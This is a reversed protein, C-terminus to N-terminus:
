SLSLDKKFEKAIERISEETAIIQQRKFALGSILRPKSLLLYALKLYKGVGHTASLVESIAARSRNIKVLQSKEIKGAVLKKMNSWAEDPGISPDPLGQQRLYYCIRALISSQLQLHKGAYCMSSQHLRYYLLVEELVHLKSLQLVRLWLEIDEGYEFRENYGGAQLVIDKRMMVTPHPMLTGKGPNLLYEVIKAHSGGRTSKKRTLKGSEDIFAIGTGLVGVEPHKEMWSLQLAFRDPFAIDDQDMRAILSARAMEIGRNLTAVLGKNKQEVFIIREDSYSRVIRAGDDMSGDNIIIFEFDRETQELISDIAARLYPEGNYLPLVVSIKPTVTM